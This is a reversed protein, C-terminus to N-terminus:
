YSNKEKKPKGHDAPYAKDSYERYSHPKKTYDPMNINPNRVKALFTTRPRTNLYGLVSYDRPNSKMKSVESNPDSLDGFVISDSPCAQQCATRITGDPVKLDKV